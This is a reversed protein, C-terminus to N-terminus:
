GFALDRLKAVAPSKTNEKAADKLEKPCFLFKGLTGYNNLMGERQKRMVWSRSKGVYSAAQSADLYGTPESQTIAFADRLAAVVSPDKLAAKFMEIFPNEM